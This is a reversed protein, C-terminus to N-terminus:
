ASAPADPLMSPLFLFDCFYHLESELEIQRTLESPSSNKMWWGDPARFHSTTKETTKRKKKKCKGSIIESRTNPRTVKNESM